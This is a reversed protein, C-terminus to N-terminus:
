PSSHSNSYTVGRSRMVEDGRLGKSIWHIFCAECVCDCVGGGGGVGVDVVEGEADGEGAAGAWGAAVAEVSGHGDEGVGGRVGTLGDTGVVDTRGLLDIEAASRPEHVLSNRGRMRQTNTM